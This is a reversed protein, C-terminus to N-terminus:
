SITVIRTKLNPVAWNHHLWPTGKRRPTWTVLLARPHHQADAFTVALAHETCGLTTLM